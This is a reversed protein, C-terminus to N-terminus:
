NESKYQREGSDLLNTTCMLTISFSLKSGSQPSTTALCATALCWAGAGPTLVGTRSNSVGSHTNYVGLDTDSVGPCTNSVGLHSNSVGPDALKRRKIRRYAPGANKKPAGQVGAAESQGYRLPLFNQVRWSADSPM